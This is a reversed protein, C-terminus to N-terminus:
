EVSELLSNAVDLLQCKALSSPLASLSAKAKKVYARTVSRTYQLSGSDQLCRVLLPHSIPRRHTRSSLLLWRTRESHQLSHIVPLPLTDQEWSAGLVRPQGLWTSAGSNWGLRPVMAGAKAVTGTRHSPYQFAAATGRLPAGGADGGGTSVRSGREKGAGARGRGERGFAQRWGDAGLLAHLDEQIQWAMGLSYGYATLAERMQSPCSGLPGLSAGIKCSTALLLASKSYVEELYAQETMHWLDVRTHRRWKGTVLQEALEAFSQVSDPTTKAILSFARAVSVSAPREDRVSVAHHLLEMAAAAPLLDEHPVEAAEGALWVLLAHLGNCLELDEDWPGAPEFAALTARLEQRVWAVRSQLPELATTVTM